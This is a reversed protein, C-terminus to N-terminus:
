KFALKRGDPVIDMPDNLIYVRVGKLTQLMFHEWNMAKLDFNFLTKDIPDLSQWLRNVNDSTFIIPNEACFPM